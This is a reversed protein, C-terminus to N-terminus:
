GMPTEIDACKATRAVFKKIYTLDKVSDVLLAVGRLHSVVRLHRTLGTFAITAVNGSDVM